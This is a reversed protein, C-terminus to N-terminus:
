ADYAYTHVGALGRSSTAAVVHRNIGYFFDAHGPLNLTLLAERAHELM